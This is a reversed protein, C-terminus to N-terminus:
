GHPEQWKAIAQCSLEEERELSSLLSNCAESELVTLILELASLFLRVVPPRWDAFCKKQNLSVQLVM